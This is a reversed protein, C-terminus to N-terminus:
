AKEKGEARREDFLLDVGEYWGRVFEPNRHEEAHPSMQFHYGYYFGRVRPCTTLKLWAAIPKTM